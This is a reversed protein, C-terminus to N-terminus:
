QNVRGVVGRESEDDEFLFNRILPLISFALSALILVSPKGFPVSISGGDTTVNLAALCM